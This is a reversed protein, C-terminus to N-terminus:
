KLGKLIEIIEKDLNAEVNEQKKTELHEIKSEKFLM